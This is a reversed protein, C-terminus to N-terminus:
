RFLRVYWAAIEPGRFIWVMCGICLYPGFPIELFRGRRGKSVIMIAVGAVSGLISSLILSYLVAVPGCLAGIAGLLFVDGMGMAERRFVWSGFVRVIWLVGFGVALGILSGVVPHESICTLTHTPYVCFGMWTAVANYYVGLIMGGITVFDPLLKHDFDVFTGVIMLSAWIWACVITHVGPGVGFRTFTGHLRWFLAAFLIGGLLEILIYRPSIPAKCNACKGRLALWSVIPINQYWHIPANCKPCHSGPKVISEGRPVRWIVVNLFSAICSGLVFSLVLIAHYLDTTM